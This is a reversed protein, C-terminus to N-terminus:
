STVDIKWSPPRSTAIESGIGIENKAVSQDFDVHIGFKPSM